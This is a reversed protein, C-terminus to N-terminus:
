GIFWRKGASRKERGANAPTSLGLRGSAPATSKDADAVKADRLEGVTLKIDKRAGNRWVEMNAASGPKLTAVQAPLESSSKIDQGNLRLIVDGAQLGAREAPGHAEVGSVLAGRPTQLGFSDALQANVDQITVGLRGRTVKGNHQLQDKVNMAVDIPIAFSVGMYGGTRSFIQSNIGIVEGKMDFLPGGSNGPNVAVDTQLFPVYSEDPLVRAKASVIGSTVSNEFGFPSGIAAVWEGVKVQEPNGIKVTPLNRADIKLLAVDSRTDSGIVKAKFERRDTLKVIVESADAVVHANTLIYGNPDVIFGSGLGRTIGGGNRPMQPMFRRFFDQFPDNEDMSPIQNSAKSEQVVSVNVVASGYRDVISSFNPLTITATSNTTSAAINAPKDAVAASAAPESILSSLEHRDCGVLLSTALGALVLSLSLTKRQM